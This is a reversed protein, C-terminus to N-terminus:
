SSITSIPEMQLTQYPPRSICVEQLLPQEDMVAKVEQDYLDDEDDELYEDTTRWEGAECPLWCILVFWNQLLINFM